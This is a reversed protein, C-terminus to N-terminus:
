FEEQKYAKIQNTYHNNALMTEMTQATRGHLTKYRKNDKCVTPLRVTGKRDITQRWQKRRTKMLRINQIGSQERVTKSRKKIMYVLIM